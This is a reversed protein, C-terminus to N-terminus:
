RFRGALRRAVPEDPGAVRWRGDHQDVDLLGIPTPLPGTSSVLGHLHVTRVSGPVATLVPLAVALQADWDGAGAGLEVVAVEGDASALAATLLAVDDGGLWWEFSPASSWRSTSRLADVDVRRALPALRRRPAVGSWARRRAALSGPDGRGRAVDRWLEAGEYAAAVEFLIARGLSPAADALAHLALQHAVLMGDLASTADAIARRRYPPRSARVWGDRAAANPARFTVVARALGELRPALWGAHAAFREPAWSSLWPEQGLWSPWAADCLVAVCSLGADRAARLVSLYRELADEDRAGPRRELRAWELTVRLEALGLQAARAVLEVLHEYTHASRVSPRARGLAQAVGFSTAPGLETDFGGEIAYGDLTAGLVVDHVAV